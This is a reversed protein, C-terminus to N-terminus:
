FICTMFLSRESHSNETGFKPLRVKTSGFNLFATNRPVLIESNSIESAYRFSRIKVSRNRKNPVGFIKWELIEDARLNEVGLNRLEWFECSGFKEESDDTGM